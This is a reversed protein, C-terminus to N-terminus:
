ESLRYRSCLFGPRAGPKKAAKETHLKLQVKYELHNELLISGGQFPDVYRIVSFGIVAM